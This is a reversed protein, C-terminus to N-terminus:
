EKQLRPKRGRKKTNSELVGDNTPNNGNDKKDGEEKVNKELANMADDFRKKQELAFSYELKSINKRITLAYTYDYQVNDIVLESFCYKILAEYLENSKEQYKAVWFIHATKEKGKQIDFVEIIGLDDELPKGNVTIEGRIVFAKEKKLDELWDVATKYGRMASLSSGVIPWLDNIILKMHGDNVQQM